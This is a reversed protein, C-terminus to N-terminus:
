CFYQQYMQELNEVSLDKNYLFPSAITFGSVLTAYKMCIEAPFGNKVGYLYGSVFADGAGNSDVPSFQEVIDQFIEKGDPSFYEAGKKGHTCVVFQKDRLITRVVEKVKEETELVDSSMFVANAFPLFEQHWPNIGDFDHIDVWIKHKHKKLIPFLHKVFECIDLLIIDAEEISKEYAIIDFDQGFKGYDTYISIREGNKNILNTHRETSTEFPFKM